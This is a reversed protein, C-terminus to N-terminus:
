YVGKKRLIDLLIVNILFGLILAVNILEITKTILPTDVNIVVTGYAKVTIFSTGGDVGDKPSPSRTKTFSSRQSDNV